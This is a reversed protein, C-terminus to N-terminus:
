TRNPFETDTDEKILMLKDIRRGDLDLVEFTFGKYPFRAGTVPITRALSFVLGGLTNFENLEDEGAVDIEFYRVFDPFPISADVIYSGDGRDVIDRDKEYEEEVDGVLAELLDNMTVVGAISGFEDVVVAFHVNTDNFKELVKFAKINEPVFLPKRLRDRMNFPKESFEAALLDKVHVIGAMKDLDGACVPFVSHISNKVRKKNEANDKQLDLWVIDIRPTMLSGIRRDGLHFVNEVIDQEIEDITGAETGVNVIAKVEEETVQDSARAKLNFLRVILNTTGSLVWIFPAVLKSLLNMPGATLRAMMEPRAMGLRKPVLEGLVLTFFTVAVVVLTLAVQGSYAAPLGAQQLWHELDGAIRKGSIIGTLIGIVTIGIQVTSLFRSPNGALEMATVARRDGKKADATLRSKRATALAIESMAFVGNLLILILLFLLDM